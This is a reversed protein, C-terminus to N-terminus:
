SSSDSRSDAASRNRRRTGKVPPSANLFEFPEDKGRLQRITFDKSFPNAVQFGYLRSFGEELDHEVIYERRDDLAVDCACDLLKRIRDLVGETALYIRGALKRLLEDNTNMLPLWEDIRLLLKLFMSKSADTGIEFYHVSARYPLRKILQSENDVVRRAADTGLLMWLCTSDEILQRIRVAVQEVGREARKAPIDQVNDIIVVRVGCRKLMTATQKALTNMEKAEKKDTPRLEPDPDGLARLIAICFLRPSCPDPVELLLAPVIEQEPDTRGYTRVVNEQIAEALQTKGAGSPGLIFMGDHTQADITHQLMRWADAVIFRVERHDIFLRKWWKARESRTAGNWAAKPRPAPWQFEGAEVPCAM